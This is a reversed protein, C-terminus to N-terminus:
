IDSPKAIMRNFYHKYIKSMITPETRVKNDAFDCCTFVGEIPLLKQETVFMSIQKGVRM